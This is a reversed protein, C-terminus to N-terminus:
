EPKEAAPKAPAVVYAFARDFADPDEDADVEAAMDTFRKHREADSFPAKKVQKKQAM